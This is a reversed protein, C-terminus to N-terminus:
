KRMQPSNSDIRQESATDNADCCCSSHCGFIQSSKKHNCKKIFLFRAMIKEFARKSNQESAQKAKKPRLKTHRQTSKPSPNRRPVARFLKVEHFSIQLNGLMFLSIYERSFLPDPEKEQKERKWVYFFISCKRGFWKKRFQKIRHGAVLSTTSTVWVLAFSSFRDYFEFAADSPYNKLKM